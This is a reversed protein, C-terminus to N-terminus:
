ETDPREMGEGQSRARDRLEWASNTNGDNGEWSQQENLTLRASPDQISAKPGSEVSAIYRGREASRNFFVAKDPTINDDFAGVTIQLPIQWLSMLKRRGLRKAVLEISCTGPKFM